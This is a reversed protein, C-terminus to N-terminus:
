NFSVEDLVDDPVDIGQSEAFAILTKSSDYLSVGFGPVERAVYMGPSLKKTVSLKDTFSASSITDTAGEIFDAAADSIKSTEVLGIFYPVFAKAFKKKAEKSLEESSELKALIAKNASSTKESTREMSDEDVVAGSELAEAEADAAAAVKKLGLASAFMQQAVSVNMAAKKYQKVLGDQAAYSDVTSSKKDGSGTLDSLGLPFASTSVLLLASVCTTKVITSIM